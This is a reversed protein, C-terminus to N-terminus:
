AERCKATGFTNPDSGSNPLLENREPHTRLDYCKPDELVSSMGLALPSCNVAVM